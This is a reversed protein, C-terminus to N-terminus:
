RMIFRRLIPFELSNLYLTDRTSRGVLVRRPTGPAGNRSRDLRVGISERIGSFGIERGRFGRSTRAGVLILRRQVQAWDLPPLALPVPSWQEGRSKKLNM